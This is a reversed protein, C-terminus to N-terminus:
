RARGRGGVFKDPESMPSLSIGIAQSFLEAPRYVARLLRELRYSRIRGDQDLGTYTYEFRALSQDPLRNVLVFGWFTLYYLALAGAALLIIHKRHLLRM